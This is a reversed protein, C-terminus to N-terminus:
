SALKRLQPLWANTRVGHHLAAVGVCYKSMSTPRLGLSLLSRHVTSSPRLSKIEVVSFDRNFEIERGDNSVVVHSDITIRDGVGQHFLTTRTFFTDLKAALPADVSFGYHEILTDNVLAASSEGLVSGIRTTDGSWRVKRTMDRALKLKVELFGESPSGYHRTRVKFRRRRQQAHDRYTRLDATDFYRTTYPTARRGEHELVLLDDSAGEVIRQLLSTPALYKADFRNQLHGVMTLSPLDITGLGAVDIM